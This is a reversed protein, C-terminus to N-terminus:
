RPVGDGAPRQPPRLALRPGARDAGYLMQKFAESTDLRLLLRNLLTLILAGLITGGYGGMGGLISTGGIM